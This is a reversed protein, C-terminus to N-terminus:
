NKKAKIEANARRILTSRPWTTITGRFRVALGPFRGAFSLAATSFAYKLM